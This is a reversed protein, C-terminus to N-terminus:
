FWTNNLNKNESYEEWDISFNTLNVEKGKLKLNLVSMLRIKKVCEYIQRLSVDYNGGALQRYQGFRAELCDTQFKGLLVYKAHLEQICYDTIELLAYTTHSLATFTEKTLKGGDANSTRWEEIWNAFYELFTRAKSNDVTLPEEFNNKMRKGKNPGKVNVIKWWTVIIKIFAQTDSYFPIKLKEGLIMLAKATFNNFIQLALKVNQREFTSSNFAKYSLRYAFKILSDCEANHLQKLSNFSAIAHRTISPKTSIDDLQFHPLAFCKFYSKLNLWNNRICKLIHM